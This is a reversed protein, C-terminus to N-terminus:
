ILQCEVATQQKNCVHQLKIHVSQECEGANSVLQLWPVSVDKACTYIVRTIYRGAACEGHDFEEVVRGNRGLTQKTFVGLTPHTTYKITRSPCLDLQHKTTVDVRTICPLSELVGWGLSCAQFTSVEVVYQMPVPERAGVIQFEEEGGEQCVFRVQATRNGDGDVYEHGNFRGLVIEMAVENGHEMRVQSVTQNLCVKYQWYNTNPPFQSMLCETPWTPPRLSPLVPRDVCHFRMGMSTQMSALLPLDSEGGGGNSLRVVVERSWGVMVMLGLWFM